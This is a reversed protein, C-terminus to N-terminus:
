WPSRSPSTRSASSPRRPIDLFASPMAARGGRNGNVILIDVGRIIYLTALTVVLSPVRGAAVIIGNAVGCALAIGLGALIM